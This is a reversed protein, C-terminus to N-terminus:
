GEEWKHPVAELRQVVVWAPDEWVLVEEWALDVVPSPVEWVQVVWELVVESKLVVGWVQDEAWARAEVLDEEVQGLGQDSMLRQDEGRPRSELDMELRLDAEWTRAEPDEELTSERAQDWPPAQGRCEALGLM